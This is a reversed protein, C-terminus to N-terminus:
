ELNGDTVDQIRPPSQSQLKLFKIQDQLEDVTKDLDRVAQTAMLALKMYKITAKKEKEWMSEYKACEDTKLKQSIKLSKNLTALRNNEKTLKEIQAKLDVNEVMLKNALEQLELTTM